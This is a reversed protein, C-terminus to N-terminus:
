TVRLPDPLEGSERQTAREPSPPRVKSSGVLTAPGSVKWVDSAASGLLPRSKADHTWDLGTAVM